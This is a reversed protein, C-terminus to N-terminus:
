KKKKKKEDLGSKINLALALADVSDKSTDHM